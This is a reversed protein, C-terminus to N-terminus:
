QFHIDSEQDATRIVEAGWTQLFNTIMIGVVKSM